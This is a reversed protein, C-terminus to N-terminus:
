AVFQTINKKKYGGFSKSWGEYTPSFTWDMKALLFLSSKRFCEMTRKGGKKIANKIGVLMKILKTKLVPLLILFIETCGLSLDEWFESTSDNPWIKKIPSPSSPALHPNFKGVSRWIYIHTDLINSIINIPIKM